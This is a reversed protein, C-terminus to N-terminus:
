ASGDRARSAEHSARRATLHLDIAEGLAELGAVATARRDPALHDLLEDVRGAVTRQTIALAKLGAPTVELSM